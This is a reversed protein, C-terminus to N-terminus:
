FCIGFVISFVFTLFSNGVPGNVPVYRRKERIAAHSRSLASSYLWNTWKHLLANSSSRWTSATNRSTLFSASRDRVGCSVTGNITYSQFRLSPRQHGTILYFFFLTKISQFQELQNIIENPTGCPDTKSGMNKSKNNENAIQWTLLGLSYKLVYFFLLLLLSNKLTM